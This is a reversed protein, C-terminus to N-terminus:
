VCDVEVLSGEISLFQPTHSAGVSLEHVGHDPDAIGRNHKDVFIGVVARESGFRELTRGDGNLKIDLVNVCEDPTGDVRPRLDRHRELVHEPTITIASELVWESMM